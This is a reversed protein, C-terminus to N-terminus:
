SNRNEVKWSISDALREALSGGGAYAKQYATTHQGGLYGEIDIRAQHLRPGLSFLWNIPNQWFVKLQYALQLDGDNLHEALDGIFQGPMVNSADALTRLLSDERADSIVDGPVTTWYTRDPIPGLDQGCIGWGQTDPLEAQKRGKPRFPDSLMGVAAVQALRHENKMLWERIVRCGGSYGLLIVLEGDLQDVIRDIDQVGLRTSEDWSKNGGVTAMSAPWVVREVKYEPNLLVLREVVDYLVSDEHIVGPANSGIGDAYIIYM